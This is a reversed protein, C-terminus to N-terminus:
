FVGVPVCAYKKTKCCAFASSKYVTQDAGALRRKRDSLRLLVLHWPTIPLLLDHTADSYEWIFGAEDDV